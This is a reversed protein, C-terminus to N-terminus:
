KGKKVKAMEALRAKAERAGLGRVAMVAAKTADRLRLMGPKREWQYVGELIAPNRAAPLPSTASTDQGAEVTQREWDRVHGSVLRFLPHPTPKNVAAYKSLVAPNRKSLKTKLHQWEYL